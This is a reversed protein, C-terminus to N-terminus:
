NFAPCNWFRRWTGDSIRRWLVTTTEDDVFCRGPYAEKGIAELEWGLDLGTVNVRARQKM